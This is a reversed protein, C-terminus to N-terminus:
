PAKASDTARIAEDGTPDECVYASEEEDCVDNANDDVCCLPGFVGDGPGDLGHSQRV